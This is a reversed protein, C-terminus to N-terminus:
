RGAGLKKDAPAAIHGNAPPVPLSPLGAGPQSGAGPVVRDLARLRKRYERPSLGTWRRFARTFSAPEAFGLHTAVARMRVTPDSVRRRAEASRVEDVLRSYTLGAQALRRQITRVSMGTAEAAARISLQGSGLLGSIVQRVRDILAGGAGLCERQGTFPMTVRTPPAHKDGPAAIRSLEGLRGGERSSAPKEQGAIEVGACPLDERGEALRRPGRLLRVRQLSLHGGALELHESQQGLLQGVVLHRLTQEDGRLGDLAVHLVDEVFEPDAGAASRHGLSAAQAEQRGASGRGPQRRRWARTM